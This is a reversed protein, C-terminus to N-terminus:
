GIGQTALADSQSWVRKIKKLKKEVNAKGEDIMKEKKTKQLMQRIEEIIAPDPTPTKHGSHDNSVRESM